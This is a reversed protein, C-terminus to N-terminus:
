GLQDNCPMSLPDRPECALQSKVWKIPFGGLKGLVHASETGELANQSVELLVSTLLHHMQDNILLM